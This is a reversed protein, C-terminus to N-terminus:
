TQCFMNFPKKPNGTSPGRHASHNGHRPHPRVRSVNARGGPQLVRGGVARRGHLEPFYQDFNNVLSSLFKLTEWDKEIADKFYNSMVLKVIEM